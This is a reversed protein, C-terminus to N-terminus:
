FLFIDKDLSSAACISWPCVPAPQTVQGLHSLLDTVPSPSLGPRRLGLPLWMGLMQTGLGGAWLAPRPALASVGGQCANPLLRGPPWHLQPVPGGPAAWRCHPHSRPSATTATPAAAAAAAATEEQESQAGKGEPKPVLDEGTTPSCLHTTRLGPSLSLFPPLVASSESRSTANTAERRSGVGLGNTSGSCMRRGLVHEGVRM